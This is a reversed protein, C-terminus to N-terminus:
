RGHDIAQVLWEDGRRQWVLTWRPAVITGGGAPRLAPLQLQVVARDEGDPRLRIGSSRLTAWGGQPDVIRDVWASWDGLWADISRQQAAGGDATWRAGLQEGDVQLHPWDFLPRLATVRDQHRLQTLFYSVAAEATSCALGCGGTAASAEGQRPPTAKPPATPAGSDHAAPRPATAAADAPHPAARAGCAVGLALTWTLGAM